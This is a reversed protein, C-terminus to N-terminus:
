GVWWGVQLGVLCGALMGVSWGVLWGIWWDLWGGTVVNRGSPTMKLDGIWTVYGQITATAFSM